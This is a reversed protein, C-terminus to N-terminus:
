STAEAPGNGAVRQRNLWAAYAILNLRGDSDAPAGAALHDRITKAPVQLLRAAQAATLARPDAPRPTAAKRSAKRSSGAKPTRSAKRSAKRKAGIPAKRKAAKRKAGTPAKRKARTPAKRKARTPAKRKAAKPRTVKRAKRAPPTKALKRREAM